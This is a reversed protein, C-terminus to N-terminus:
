ARGPDTSGAPRPRLEVQDSWFAPRSAAIEFGGAAALPAFAALGRPIVRIANGTLAQGREAASRTVSGIVASAGRGEGNLAILNAVIADDSGYEFLGGESAAVLVAGAARSEAVLHRLPAVDSWDYTIHSFAIDLGKLAGARMLEALANRGFTPGPADRDLVLIRVPRALLAPSSRAILILANMADLAPGGAIDVLDLPASRGAVASERRVADAILTAMQQTRLRIFAAQPAAAFRRDAPGDYPPALNDPGLKMVYTTIADLYGGASGEGFVAEM